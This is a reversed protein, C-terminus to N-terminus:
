LEAEASYHSAYSAGTTLSSGTLKAFGHTNVINASIGTKDVSGLHHTQGSSGGNGYVVVTPAARMMPSFRHSGWIETTNIADGIWPNGSSIGGTLTTHSQYYYRQCLSQEEGFSRHEFPTAQEGIEYQVGTLYFESDATRSWDAISSQNNSNLKAYGSDDSWSGATGGSYSSGTRGMVFRIGLLKANDTTAWTGSTRAPVTLVKKEWTDASNITYNLPLTQSGDDNSIGIGYLGAVSSKVWFSLTSINCSSKGFGIKAGDNVEVYYTHQLYDDADITTEVATTLTKLSYQFQESAPTDTSQSMTGAWQEINQEYRFRDASHSYTTAGASQSLSTGRQFIQMSGNIIINRRGGIQGNTLVEGMKALEAAKSM